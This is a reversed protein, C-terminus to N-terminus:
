RGASVWVGQAGRQKMKGTCSDLEEQRVPFATAMHMEKHTIKPQTKELCCNLICIRGNKIFILIQIDFFNHHFLAAQM